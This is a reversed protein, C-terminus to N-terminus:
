RAVETNWRSVKLFLGTLVVVMGFNVVSMAASEGIDSGKLIYMFITSTATSYGPQGHTMAWIIPFNNFVNMVNILAAVTLAPRLLPLTISWYVRWKKAGDMKAAEYIDSPITALGALLAYTTFPLSVFVAVFVLWPMATSAQGLPDAEPGGLADLLGLDVRLMNILGAEPDLMWKFIIATMLVSAAWPAILAWRAVNRLPFKQNFLQALALSLVVTLTVVAVVWILSRFMVGGFDPEEFLKTYNDLGNAGQVIGFRSIKQFSSQIMVVVPWIVVVAILIVAPGIWLLPTLARGMRSQSKQHM